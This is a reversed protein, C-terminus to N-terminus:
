FQSRLKKKREKVSTGWPGWETEPAPSAPAPLPPSAPSPSAPAPTENISPSGCRATAQEGPDEEQTSVTTSRDDDGAANTPVDPKAIDASDASMLKLLVIDSLDQVMGPLLASQRNSLRRLDRLGLRLMNLREQYRTREIAVDEHDAALSEIEHNTLSYM